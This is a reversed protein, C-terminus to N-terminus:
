ASPPAASLHPTGAPYTPAPAEKFIKGAAKLVAPHTCVSREPGSGILVNPKLVIKEGPKVFANIGGLLDLGRKMAAYVTEDEYNDCAVVVVKSKDPM